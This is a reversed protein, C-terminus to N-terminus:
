HRTPPVHVLRAGRLNRVAVRARGETGKPCRGTNNSPWPVLFSGSSLDAQSVDPDLGTQWGHALRQAEALRLKRIYLTRLRHAESPEQSSPSSACSACLACYARLPVLEGKERGAGGGTCSLRTPTHASTKCSRMAEGM